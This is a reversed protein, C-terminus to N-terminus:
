IQCLHDVACAPLRNQGLVGSGDPKDKLLPHTDKISIFPLSALAPSEIVARAMFIVRNSTTSRRRRTSTMSSSSWVTAKLLGGDPHRKRGLRLVQLTPKRKRRTKLRSSPARRRARPLKEAYMRKPLRDDKASVGERVNFVREATIIRKACGTTMTKWNLRVRTLMDTVIKDTSAGLGPHASTCLCLSDNMAV